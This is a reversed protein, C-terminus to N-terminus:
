MQALQAKLHDIPEIPTPDAGNAMALYYSIYDGFHLCTLMQALPTKGQAEVSDTTFGQLM